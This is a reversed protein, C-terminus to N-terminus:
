ISSFTGVVMLLVLVIGVVGLIKDMGTAERRAGHDNDDEKGPALSYYLTWITGVIPIIGILYFWGNFSLDHLRKIATYVMAAVSIIAVIFAPISVLAQAVPSGLSMGTFIVLAAAVIVATCIAVRANYRMVGIRGEASFWRDETAEVSDRLSSTPAQYPDRDFVERAVASMSYSENRQIFASAAWRFGM